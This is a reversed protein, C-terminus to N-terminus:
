GNAVSSFPRAHTHSEDESEGEIRAIIDNMENDAIAGLNEDAVSDIYQNQTSSADIAEVTQEIERVAMTANIRAGSEIEIKGYEITGNIQASPRVILQNKVVLTGEFRGSVIANQVEANGSFLGTESIELNIGDKLEAQITGDVVLDHCSSIEGSLTIDRGITLRGSDAHNSTHIETSMNAHGPIDNRLRNRDIM